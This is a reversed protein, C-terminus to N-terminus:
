VSHDADLQGSRWLKWGGLALVACGAFMLIAETAGLGNGIGVIISLTLFFGAVLLAVGLVKRINLGVERPLSGIGMALITRALAVEPASKWVRVTQNGYGGPGRPSILHVASRAGISRESRDTTSPLEGHLNCRADMPHPVVADDIGIKDLLCALDGITSM